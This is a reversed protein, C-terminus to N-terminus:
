ITERVEGHYTHKRILVLVNNKIYNSTSQEHIILSYSIFGMGNLKELKVM